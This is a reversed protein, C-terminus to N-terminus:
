LPLEPKAMAGKKHDMRSWTVGCLALLAASLSVGNSKCKTLMPKTREASYSVTPVITNRPAKKMPKPFSHGGKM